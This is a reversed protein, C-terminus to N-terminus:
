KIIIFYRTTQSSNSWVLENNYYIKTCKNEGDILEFDYDLRDENYGKISIITTARSKDNPWYPYLRMYCYKIENVGNRHLYFGEPIETQNPNYVRKRKGDIIYYIDVNEEKIYNSTSLDLLDVSDNTLFSIYFKLNPHFIAEYTEEEIVPEENDKKCSTFISCVLILIIILKKM